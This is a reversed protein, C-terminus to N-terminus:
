PSSKRPNALPGLGWPSTGPIRGVMVWLGQVAVRVDGRVHAQVNERVVEQWRAPVNALVIEQEHGRVTEGAHECM